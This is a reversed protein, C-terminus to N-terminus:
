SSVRPCCLFAPLLSSQQSRQQPGDSPCDPYPSSLSGPPHVEPSKDTVGLALGPPSVKGGATSSARLHSVLSM